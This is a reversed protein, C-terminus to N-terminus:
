FSSHIHIKEMIVKENDVIQLWYVGSSLDSVTISFTDDSSPITENGQQVTRGNADLLQYTMDTSAANTRTIWLRDTAPNPFVKIETSPVENEVFFVPSQSVTIGDELQVIQYYNKQQQPTHYFQFYIQNDKVIQQPQFPTITTFHSGDIAHLVAFEEDATDTQWQVLVQENEIIASSGQWSLPLSADNADNYVAIEDLYLFNGYGNINVFRISIEQGIFEQLDVMETRWDTCNQPTFAVTSTGATSLEMSKKNYVISTNDQFCDTSVEIQLADTYTASYPAYALNFQLEATTASRLDIRQSQFFDKQGLANYNFNNFRVVNNEERCATTIDVGWTMEGDPNEIIWQRIGNELDDVFTGKVASMLTVVDVKTTSVSRTDDNVTLSVSYTGAVDYVHQPNAGRYDTKGDNDIDWLYQLTHPNPHTINATFQVVLESQCYEAQQDISFDVTFTPCTLETKRQEAFYAIRQYQGASLFDRCHNNGYSMINRPDPQYLDGNADKTSGTYNCNDDNVNSVNPDAPTDCVDDGTTTCNSGDVLELNPENAYKGHTHFLGFYHGVEHLHTTGNEVCNNTLFIHDKDASPLYAYGCVLGSNTVINNVFYLNLTNDVNHQQTIESELGKNFDFYSDNAILRVSCLFFQVNAPLFYENLETIAQNLATQSLADQQNSRAVLHITLPISVPAKAFSIIHNQIAFRQKALQELETTTAEHGCSHSPMETSQAISM